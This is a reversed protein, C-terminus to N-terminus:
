LELSHELSSIEPSCDHSYKFTYHQASTFCLNILLFIFVKMLEGDQKM